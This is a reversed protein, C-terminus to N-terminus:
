SAATLELELCECLPLGMSDELLFAKVYHVDNRKLSELALEGSPPALCCRLMRNGEGYLAIGIRCGNWAPHNLRVAVTGNELSIDTLRLDTVSTWLARMTLDADVTFESQPDYTEQTGDRTLEWGAFAYGDRVPTEAPLRLATNNRVAQTEPAGSGGNADFLITRYAHDYVAEAAASMDMVGWGYYEDWGESGRDQATMALYDFLAGATLTPDIRLLVAAAGSVLPTAFSTGTRVKYGGLYNASYVDVGPATLFLSRNHNSRSYVSGNRDLAGIGVASDYGAPYYVTATGGNGAACVLVAGSDTVYNVAARLSQSNVSIGLSMNIIDCGFTDVAGYLAQCIYSVTTTSQDFCKLPVIYAGPAAGTTEGAILSAVATGHGINDLTDATDTLYNWGPLLREGLESHARCGSDIVGVKINLGTYGAAVTQDAHIVSLHWPGDEALLVTDGAPEELTVACDEEYWVVAGDRLLERLLAGDVVAFPPLAEEGAPGFFTGEEALLATEQRAQDSLLVIYDADDEASVAPGPLLVLLTCLAAFLAAASLAHPFRPRRNAHSNMMAYGKLVSDNVACM